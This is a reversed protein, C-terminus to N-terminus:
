PLMMPCGPPTRWLWSDLTPTVSLFGTHLLAAPSSRSSPSRKPLSRLLFHLGVLHGCYHIGALITCDQLTCPPSRSKARSVQESSSCKPPNQHTLQDASGFFEGRM